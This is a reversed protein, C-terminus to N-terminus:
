RFTGPEKMLLLTLGDISTGGLVEQYVPRQICKKIM